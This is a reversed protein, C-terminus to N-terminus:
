KGCERTRTAVRGHNNETDRAQAMVLALLINGGCVTELELVHADNSNM